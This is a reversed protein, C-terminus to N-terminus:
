PATSIELANISFPADENAKVIGILKSNGIHSKIKNLNYIFNDLNIEAWFPHLLNM